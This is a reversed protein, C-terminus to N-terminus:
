YIISGQYDVIPFMTGNTQNLTRAIENRKDITENNLEKFLGFYLTKNNVKFQLQYKNLQKNFCFNPIGSTNNRQKQKFQNNQSHSVLELNEIRNDDPKHNKHNVEFGDSIPGYIYEWIYRHVRVMKGNLGFQLYGDKRKNGVEKWIGAKLRYIKGLNANVFIQQKAMTREKKKKVKLYRVM